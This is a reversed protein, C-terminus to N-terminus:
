KFNISCDKKMIKWQKHKRNINSILDESREESLDKQQIEMQLLNNLTMYKVIMKKMKWQM